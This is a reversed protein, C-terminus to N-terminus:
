PCKPIDCYEFHDQSSLINGNYSIERFAMEYDVYTAGVFCYPGNPDEKYNRCYNGATDDQIDELATDYMSKVYDGEDDYLHWAVTDTHWDDCTQGSATTTVTTGMFQEGEKWCTKGPILEVVDNNDDTSEAADKVCLPKPTGWTPAVNMFGEKVRNYKDAVLAFHTRDAAAQPYLASYWFETTYQEGNLWTITKSKSTGIYSGDGGVWHYGGGVGALYEVVAKVTDTSSFHALQAGQEECATKANAYDMGDNLRIYCSNEQEFGVDCASDECEGLNCTETREGIMMVDCDGFEELGICTRKYKQTGEGCTASCDGVPSFETWSSKTRKEEKEEEKEEENEEEKEEEKEEKKEEDKVEEKEAPKFTCSFVRNMIVLSAPTNEDKLFRGCFCRNALYQSGVIHKNDNDKKQGAMRQKLCYKACQKGNKPKFKITEQTERIGALSHGDKCDALDALTKGPFRDKFFVADSLYALSIIVLTALFVKHMMNFLKYYV